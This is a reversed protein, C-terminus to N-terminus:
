NDMKGCSEGPHSQTQRRDQDGCLTPVPLLYQATVWLWHDPTDLDSIDAGLVVGRPGEQPVPWRWAPGHSLTLGRPGRGSKEGENRGKQKNTSKRKRPVPSAEWRVGHLPAVPQRSLRSGRQGTRVGVKAEDPRPLLPQKGM